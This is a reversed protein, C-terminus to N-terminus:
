AKPVRRLWRGLPLALILLGCVILGMGAFRLPPFREGLVLAASLTGFLPVLLSFPAVTGAPYLNLLHGWIGFGILTTPIALYLVTGYALLDAHAFASTIAPWGEFVLSLAFAPLPPVLSLWVVMPLMDVKGTGRMLVNGVGWSLAACMTLGLGLLTMDGGVSFGILALGCFAVMVGTLQRASPRERLALAAILITFFAQAQLTLSALGPPMGKTMAIFIFVFQGLFWTLGIALMRRFPVKPPRVVLVPMAAVVFRLVTLLLPPFTELGVHIVVFNFGWVATVLVALAIHRPAM